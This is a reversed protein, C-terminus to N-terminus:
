FVVQVEPPPPPLEVGTSAAGVSSSGATVATSVWQFFSSFSNADMTDLSVVRDAFTKLAEADAKPGAACAIITGFGCAKIKPVVEKFALVDTPKGDTLVFLLPRWDGKNDASSRRVERQVKAVIFELGEGLMTAGSQPCVIDPIAAAEIPTIPLIEAVESNFTVISLHVTELAYPNQRLASMMSRLGINVSEIPEGRMSGSTDALFYIILRRDSM